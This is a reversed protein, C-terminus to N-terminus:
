SGQRIIRTAQLGEGPQWIQNLTMTGGGGEEKM